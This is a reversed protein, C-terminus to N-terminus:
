FGERRPAGLQEMACVAMGAVKRVIALAKPQSVAYTERSLLHKAENVYDEIYMLWEEVSHKGGTTTTESNWRTDQYARESDIAGYVESRTAM